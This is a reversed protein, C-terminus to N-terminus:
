RFAGPAASVTAFGGTGVQEVALGREAVQDRFRFIGDIGAFGDRADLAETPFPAGIEWKAALSNVLLVADYGLSALRSPSGGFRTRYRAALARFREDPVSAFWAGKLAPNRALGPESNWLEPGLLRVNGPGAGYQTLAPTLASAVQGSDAILLAQFTVPGLRQQVPAVTGDPRVMGAQAARAARAEYGTVRRVAAALKARDRPFTEIATVKGGTERVSKMFASSARQGYVGAPVLAAFSLVGHARAYAVVRGISQDPQFGMVYAEGALSADNSFSLIPIGAEKAQAAVARVDNALLPGLFVKSGDAVARAAANAAGGATDYVQLRFGSANTDLLALNAANAISQGVAANPGTMPVLVAVRNQPPGAEPTVVIPALVPAAPRVVAPPPPPPAKRLVPGNSCAAVAGLAAVAIWRLTGSLRQRVARGDGM